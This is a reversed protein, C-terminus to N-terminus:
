LIQPKANSEIWFKELSVHHMVMVNKDSVVYFRGLETITREGRSAKVTLGKPRLRRNLKSYLSKESATM